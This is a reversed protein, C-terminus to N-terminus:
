LWQQWATKCVIVVSQLLDLARESVSAHVRKNGTAEDLRRLYPQSFTGLLRLCQITSGTTTICFQAWQCSTDQLDSHAIYSQECMKFKVRSLLHPTCVGTSEISGNSVSRTAESERETEIMSIYHLISSYFSHMNSYNNNYYCANKVYSYDGKRHISQHDIWTVYMYQM